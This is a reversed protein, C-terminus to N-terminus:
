VGGCATLPDYDNRMLMAHLQRRRIGMNGGDFIPLALADQLLRGFPAENDYSDIGVVRMLDTIVRVAAESGFIKAQIALEDAGPSQTDLAHCARWSLYRAAEITTKADALAYGVAQHEIVAHVGGRKETRAFHLAYDFAARMLAVGFICVLAATGTFAASALMLGAGEQGLLNERPATVERLGFQPVLHARHGIADIAREFVIGSSPGEVAIISVGQEPPANASTRCVVCLVDAGTRNWGTASSVWKKRGNIVWNDGVLRATTRVGEGPPPSAANASGGPESSCFGALPAGSTKLFPALLRGCQEPTGGLLLPLLGLVTGLMTLTVSPNVAYFEEAMIAMDVLGANDGGAPQPICQRLYGAAVMAEYTPRTALFREEPTVLREAKRAEALVDKAFKRSQLQLERQAPSLTFDIAM